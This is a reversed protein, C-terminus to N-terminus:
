AARATEIPLRGPWDIGAVLPSSLVRDGTESPFLYAGVCISELHAPPRRYLSSIFLPPRAPPPDILASFLLLPILTLLYVPIARKGLFRKRIELAQVALIQRVITARAASM